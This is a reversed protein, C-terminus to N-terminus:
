SGPDGENALSETFRMATLMLQRAVPSLPRSLMIKTDNERRFARKDADVDNGCGVRFSSHPTCYGRLRVMSAPLM